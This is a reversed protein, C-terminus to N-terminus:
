RTSLGAEVAKLAASRTDRVQVLDLVMAQQLASLYNEQNKREEAWALIDLQIPSQLSLSLHGIRTLINQHNPISINLFANIPPQNHREIYGRLERPLKSRKDQEFRELLSTYTDPNSPKITMAETNDPQTKRLPLSM